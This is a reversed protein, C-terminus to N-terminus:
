IRKSSQTQLNRMNVLYIKSCELTQKPTYEWNDVGFSVAYAIRKIPRNEAFKLYADSIDTRWTSEFYVKRWVQDSGVILTDFEQCDIDCLHNIDMKFIQDGIFDSIFLMYNRFAKKEAFVCTTKKIIKKVLRKVYVLAWNRPSIYKKEVNFVIACHGLSQLIKQLAYAQLIGGYNSHLPLTLIGIKM